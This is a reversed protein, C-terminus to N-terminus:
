GEGGIRYVPTQRVRSRNGNIRRWEGNRTYATDDGKEFFPTLDMLGYCDRVKQLGTNVDRVITGYRTKFGQQLKWKLGNEGRWASLVTTHDRNLFKGIMPFSMKAYPHYRLFFVVYKRAEAIRQTAGRATVAHKPLILNGCVQEVVDQAFQKDLPDVNLNKVVKGTRDYIPWGRPDDLELEDFPQLSADAM